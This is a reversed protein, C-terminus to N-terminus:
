KGTFNIVDKIDRIILQYQGSYVTLIGRLTGIGSPVTDAAFDAYNSTRIIFTKGNIVIPTGTYNAIDRNTTSGNPGPIDVFKQGAQPFKVNQVEVLKGVYGLANAATGPVFIAPPTANNRPLSDLFFHGILMTAPIRGISKSTGSTYVGYGLELMGGYTGLCLGKCKIFVRQGLKFTSNLGTQEISVTLGGTNDQIYMTKYINGSEDTSNLYGQIILDDNIMMTDPYGLNPKTAFYIKLSDITTNSAFDVHPITIPPTDFDQKVCSTLFSFSGAVLGAFVLIISTKSSLYKM